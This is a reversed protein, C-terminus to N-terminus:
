ISLSFTFGSLSCKKDVLQTLTTNLSESGKEISLLTQEYRECRTKGAEYEAMKKYNEINTRLNCICTSHYNAKDKIQMIIPSLISYVKELSEEDVINTNLAIHEVNWEEANLTRKIEDKLTDWIQSKQTIDPAALLDEIDFLCGEYLPRYGILNELLEKMYKIAVNSKEQLGSACGSLMTKIHLPFLELNQKLEQILTSEPLQEQLKDILNKTNIFTETYCDTLASEYDKILYRDEAINEIAQMAKNIINQLSPNSLAREIESIQLSGLHWDESYKQTLSKLQTYKLEDLGAPPTFIKIM